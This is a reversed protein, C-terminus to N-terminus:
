KKLINKKTEKSNLILEELKVDDYVIININSNKSFQALQEYATSVMPSYSFFYLNKVNDKIIVMVLTKGITKIDLNTKYIKCEVWDLSNKDEKYFDKGGDWTKQTQIWNGDFLEELLSATLDEFKEGDFVEKNNDKKCFSWDEERLYKM